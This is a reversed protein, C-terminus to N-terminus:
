RDDEKGLTLNEVMKYKGYAKRLASFQNFAEEDPLDTDLLVGIKRMGDKLHEVENRLDRLERQVPDVQEYRQREFEMQKKFAELKDRQIQDELVERPIMLKDEIEQEHKEMLNRLDDPLDNVNFTDYKGPMINSRVKNSDIRVRDALAEAVQKYVNPDYYNNSM